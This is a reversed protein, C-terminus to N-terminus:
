EERVEDSWWGAVSTEVADFPPLRAATEESFTGLDVWRGDILQNVMVTRAAVDVEWLFPLGVRAYYPRKRLYHYGRTTPSLVECVWDPVVTISADVPLRPLRERRWGAVDPAIEPAGPLEIGPEPLIWWGGPGGRGDQFSSMLAAYLRGSINQHVARPRTMAYMVGDIIEGKMNEPLAELDAITAPHPLKVAPLSM